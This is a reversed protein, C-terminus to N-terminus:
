SPSHPALAVARQQQALYARLVFRADVKVVVLEVTHEATTEHRARYHEEAAFRAYALARQRQLGDEPHVVALYQIDAALLTSMLQLHTGVANWVLLVVIHMDETLGVKCVDKCM